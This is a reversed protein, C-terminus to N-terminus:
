PMSHYSMGGEALDELNGHRVPHVAAQLMFQTLQATALLENVTSIFALAYVRCALSSIYTHWALAPGYVLSLIFSYYTPLSKRTSLRESM